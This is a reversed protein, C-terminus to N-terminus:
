INRSSDFRSVSVGFLLHKQSVSVSLRARCLAAVFSNTFRETDEFYLLTLYAQLANYDLTYLLYVHDM